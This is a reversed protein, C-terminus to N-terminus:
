PAAPEDAPEAKAELYDELTPPGVTRAVRRLGISELTRRLTNTVRSYADLDVEVGLSLQGEIRELEVEMTSARRVLSLVAESLAARGGLDSVHLEVIDKFRRYWSSNGDGDIFARMGNTVASRVKSPRGDQRQRAGRSPLAEAEALSRNEPGEMRKM